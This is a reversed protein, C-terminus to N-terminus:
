DHLVSGSVTLKAHVQGRSGPVASVSASASVGGTEAGIRHQMEIESMKSTGLTTLCRSLVRLAPLLRVPVEGLDFVLGAYTIGNTPQAVTILRESDSAAGPDSSGLQRTEWPVFKSQKEMDAVELRPITALNEPSDPELQRARLAEAEAALREKEGAPLSDTAARVNEAEQKALESAMNQDPAM